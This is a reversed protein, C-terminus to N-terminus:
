ACSMGLFSAGTVKTEMIEDVLNIKLFHFGRRSLLNTISFRQILINQRRSRVIRKLRVCNGLSKRSVHKKAFFVGMLAIISSYILHQVARRFDASTNSIMRPLVVTASALRCNSRAGDSISFRPLADVRRRWWSHLTICHMEAAPSRSMLTVEIRRCGSTSLPRSAMDSLSCRLLFQSILWAMLSNTARWSSSCDRQFSVRAAM